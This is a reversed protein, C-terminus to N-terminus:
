PKRRSLADIDREVTVIRAQNREVMIQLDNVKQNAILVADALSKATERQRQLDMDLPRIAATYLLGLVGLALSVIAVWNTEGNSRLLKGPM